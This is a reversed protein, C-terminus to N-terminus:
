DTTHILGDKPKVRQAWETWSGDYLRRTDEPYGAEALAADIVAATVGTGCSNIIPKSPDVGKSHFLAKLESAPKLTQTTPDLLESVPVNISGPIHGSPLGPRPEPDKGAWRGPSRADLIQVDIAGSQKALKRAISEMEEFDVVQSRDLEPVSYTATEFREPIGSDTPYDEECWRKFNNLIHVDPHGLVRLTWGVRPASFIGQESDDYVVVRDDRRIGMHSMATAFDAPSPLM